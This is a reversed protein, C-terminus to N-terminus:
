SIDTPNESGTRRITVRRGEAKNECNRLVLNARGAGDWPEGCPNCFVFACTRLFVGGEEEAVDQYTGTREPYTGDRELFGRPSGSFGGLLFM